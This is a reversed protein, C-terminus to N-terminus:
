FSIDTPVGCPQQFYYEGCDCIYYGCSYGDTHPKSIPKKMNIYSEVWLDCFLDVGPIFSNNINEVMKENLMKSYISDDNALLVYFQFNILM